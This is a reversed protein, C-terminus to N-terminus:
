KDEKLGLLWDASVNFEQCINLLAFSNPMRVGNCWASVTSQAYGTREIFDLQSNNCNNFILLRLNKAFEEM